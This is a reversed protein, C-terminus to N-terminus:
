GWERVGMRETDKRGVAIVTVRNHGTSQKRGWVGERFGRNEQRMLGKRIEQDRGM